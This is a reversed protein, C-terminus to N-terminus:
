LLEAHNKTTLLYLSFSVWFNNTYGFSGTHDTVAATKDSGQMSFKTRISRPEMPSVPNGSNSATNAYFSQRYNSTFSSPRSPTDPPPPPPALPLEPQSEL